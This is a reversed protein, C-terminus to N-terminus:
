SGGLQSPDAGARIAHAREDDATGVPNLTVTNPPPPPPPLQNLAIATPIQRVQERKVLARGISYAGSVFAAAGTLIALYIPNHTTAASNNIYEVIRSVAGDALPVFLALVALWFESTRFGGKLAAKLLDLM